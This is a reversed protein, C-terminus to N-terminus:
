INKREKPDTHAADEKPNDPLVGEIKVAASVRGGGARNLHPRLPPKYENQEGKMWEIIKTQIVFLWKGKMKGPLHMYEGFTLTPLSDLSKTMDPEFYYYDESTSCGNLCGESMRNRCISCARSPPLYIERM